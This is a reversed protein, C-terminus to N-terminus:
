QASYRFPNANRSTENVVKSAADPLSVMVISSNDGDTLNIMASAGGEQYGAITALCIQVLASSVGTNGIRHESLSIKKAQRYGNL